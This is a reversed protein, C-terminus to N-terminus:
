AATDKARLLEEHEEDLDDLDDLDDSPSAPMEQDARQLILAHDPGTRRAAAAISEFKQHYDEDIFNGQKLTSEKGSAPEDSDRHQGWPGHESGDPALVESALLLEVVLGLFGQVMHYVVLVVLVGKRIPGYEGATFVATVTPCYYPDGALQAGFCPDGVFKTSNPVAGGAICLGHALTYRHDIGVTMSAGNFRALVEINKDSCEERLSAYDADYELIWIMLMLECAILTVGRVIGRWTQVDGWVASIVVGARGVIHRVAVVLLVLEGFGYVAFGVFAVRLWGSSPTAQPVRRDVVDYYFLGTVCIWAGLAVSANALLRDRRELRPWEAYWVECYRFSKLLLELSWFSLLRHFFSFRHSGILGLVTILSLMFAVVLEITRAIPGACATLGTSSSYGILTGLLGLAPDRGIAYTLDDCAYFLLLLLALVVSANTEVSRGELTDLRGPASEEDIAKWYIVIALGILLQCARWCVTRYVHRALTKTLM